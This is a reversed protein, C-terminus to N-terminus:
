ILKNAIDAIAKIGEKLRTNENTLDNVAAIITEMARTIDTQTKKPLFETTIDACWRDKSIEYWCKLDEGRQEKYAKKDADSAPQTSLVNYYGVETHGVISGSLSPSVRIRLTTDTTRIQDVNENRDVTPITSPMVLIHEPQAGVMSSEKELTVEHYFRNPYKSVMFDSVQQTTQFTNRTDYSGGQRSTGHEGTYFSGRVWIVGNEIKFVRAVHVGKVWQIIDGVKVKSPDFNICSWDNTLYEHWNAAGVARSVPRPSGTVGCDGLVFCTCNAMCNEVTALPNFKPDWFFYHYLGGYRVKDISLDVM